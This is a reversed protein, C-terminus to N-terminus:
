LRSQSRHQLSQYALLERRKRELMGRVMWAGFPILAAVLLLGTEKWSWPERSTIGIVMLSYIVFAGGHIPGLISVMEPTDALRKLPVAVFVLLLLTSGELWSMRRLWQHQQIPNM